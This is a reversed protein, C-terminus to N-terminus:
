TAEEGELDEEIKWDKDKVKEGYRRFDDFVSDMTGKSMLGDKVMQEATQRFFRMHAFNGFGERIGSKVMDMYFQATDMKLGDLMLAQLAAFRKAWEGRITISFKVDRKMPSELIARAKGIAAKLDTESFNDEPKMEWEDAEIEFGCLQCRFKKEELVMPLHCTPCKLNLNM